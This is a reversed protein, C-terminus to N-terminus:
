TDIALGDVHVLVYSKSLPIDEGSATLRIVIHSVLFKTVYASSHSILLIDQSKQNTQSGLVIAPLIYRSLSKDVVRFAPSLQNDPKMTINDPMFRTFM